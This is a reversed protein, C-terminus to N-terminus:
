AGCRGLAHLILLRVIEKSHGTLQDTAALCHAVRRRPLSASQAQGSHPTFGVTPNDTIYRKKQAWTFFPRPCALLRHIFESPPRRKLKGTWLGPPDRRGAARSGLCTWTGSIIKLRGLKAASGSKGLFLLVAAPDNHVAPRIKGLTFEAM